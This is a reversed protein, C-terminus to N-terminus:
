AACPLFAKKKQLFLLLFVKIGACAALDRSGEKHSRRSFLLRKSKQKLFSPSKKFRCPMLSEGGAGFFRAV